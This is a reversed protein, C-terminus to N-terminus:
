RTVPLASLIREVLVWDFQESGPVPPTSNLMVFALHAPEVRGHGRRKAESSALKGLDTLWKPLSESVVDGEIQM